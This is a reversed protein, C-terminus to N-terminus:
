RVIRAFLWVAEYPFFPFLSGFCLYGLRERQPIEGSRPFWLARARDPESGIGRESEGGFATVNRKGIEKQPRREIIRSAADHAKRALSLAEEASERDFLEWPTRYQALPFTSHGGRKQSFGLLWSKDFSRM